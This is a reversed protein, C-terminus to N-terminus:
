PLSLVTVRMVQQGAPVVRLRRMTIAVTEGQGFCGVSKEILWKFKIHETGQQTLMRLGSIGQDLM